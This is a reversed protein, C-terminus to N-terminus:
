WTFGQKELASLADGVRSFVKSELNRDAQLIFERLNSETLVIDAYPVVPLFLYDDVDNDQPQNGSRMRKERVAWYLSVALCNETNIRDLVGDVNIEPNFAKLIKDVKLFRKIWDKQYRQRDRFYEDRRAIDESLSAIFADIREHYTEPNREKWRLTEEVWKRVSVM